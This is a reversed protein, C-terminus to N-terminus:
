AAIKLLNVKRDKQITFGMFEAMDDNVKVARLNMMNQAGQCSWRMGSHEMRDKVLHKCTSEVIASSIPYGKELFWPYNMKHKHNSFYTITKDLQKKKSDSLSTKDRNLILEEIVTEVKGELLKKLTTRVWQRRFKSKEGFIATGSEWVYESGHVIDLVIGDFKDRLGHKEIQTLVQDELGIGADIPVIFRSKPNTMRAKLELIGYEVAKEQNALFARRHINKHLRNGTKKEAKNAIKKVVENGQKESEEQGMLGILISEATRQQATFSSTVSVTAMQKVGRKEGRALREKPNNRIAPAAKIKPVGKGDFGSLFNLGEEESQYTTENYFQEVYPGLRDTNRESSKGSLGLGLLANLIRVSERFDTESSSTGVLDQINYSWYIGPPLKLLEDLKYFQGSQESWYGQRKMCLSGFISLYKRPKEGISKYSGLDIDYADLQDTKEKIIKELFSLGINLLEALIGKEMEHLGLEQDKYGASLLYLQEIKEEIKIEIECKEM